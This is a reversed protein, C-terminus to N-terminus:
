LRNKRWRFPARRSWDSFNTFKLVAIGRKGSNLPLAKDSYLNM